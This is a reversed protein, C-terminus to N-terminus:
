HVTLLNISICGCVRPSGALGRVFLGQGGLGEKRQSINFVVGGNTPIKGM